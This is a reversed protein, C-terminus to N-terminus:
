RLISPSFNSLHNNLFNKTLPFNFISILFTRFNKAGHGVLGIHKINYNYSQIQKGGEIGRGTLYDSGNGGGAYAVNAGTIDVVLGLGGYGDNVSAEADHNM